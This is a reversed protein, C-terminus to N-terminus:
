VPSAGEVRQGGRMLEDCVRKCKDTEFFADFLSSARRAAEQFCV